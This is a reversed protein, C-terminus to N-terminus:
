LPTLDTIGGGEIKGSLGFLRCFYTEDAFMVLLQSIIILTVNFYNKIDKKLTKSVTHRKDSIIAM